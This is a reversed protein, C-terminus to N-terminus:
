EGIVIYSTGDSSISVFEDKYELVYTIEGDILSSASITITHVTNDTKKFYTTRGTVTSALPLTLTLNDTTANVMFLDGMEASAISTSASLNTVGHPLGSMEGFLYNAVDTMLKNIETPYQALKTASSIAASTTFPAPTYPM